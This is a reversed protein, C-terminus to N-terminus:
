ADGQGNSAAGLVTEVRAKPAALLDGLVRVYRDWLSRVREETFLNANYHINGGVGAGGDVLVDSEIILLTLDFPAMVGYDLIEPEFRLGNLEFSPIPTNQVSFLIRSM